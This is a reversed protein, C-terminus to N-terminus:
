APYKVQYFTIPCIKFMMNEVHKNAIIFYLLCCTYNFVQGDSRSNTIFVIREEIFEELVSSVVVFFCQGNVIRENKWLIIIKYFCQTM